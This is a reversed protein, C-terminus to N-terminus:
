HRPSYPRGVCAQWFSCGRLKSPYQFRFIEAVLFLRGQFRIYRQGGTVRNGQGRPRQSPARQRDDANELPVPLM